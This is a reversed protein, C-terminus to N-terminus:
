CDEPCEQTVSQVRALSQNQGICTQGRGKHTEELARIELFDILLCKHNQEVQQAIKASGIVLDCLLDDHVINYVM